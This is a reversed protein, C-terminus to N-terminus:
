DEDNGESMPESHCEGCCPASEYAVQQWCYACRWLIESLQANAQDALARDDAEQGPMM